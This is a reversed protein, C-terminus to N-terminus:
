HGQGMARGLLYITEGGATEADDGTGAIQQEVQQYFDQANVGFGRNTSIENMQYTAASGAGLVDVIFMFIADAVRRNLKWYEFVTYGQHSRARIWGKKMMAILVRERHDEATEGRKQRVQIDSLGYTRPDEMVASLHEYVPVWRESRSHIWFGEGMPM